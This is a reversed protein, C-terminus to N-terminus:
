TALFNCKGNFEAHFERNGQLFYYKKLTSYRVFMGSKRSNGESTPWIPHEKFKKKKVLLYHM